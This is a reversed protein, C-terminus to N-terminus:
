TRTRYLRAAIPAFVATLVAASALVIVIEQGPTEGAMLAREATVLVTIPNADVANELWSPMTEPAVFVNSAFTLPFLLLFGMNLMGAPTKMVLGMVTFAWALGSSFVILLALAAVVGLVSSARFGLAFGVSLTVAGALLYRVADGLQAGVLPAPRWIPLARFRDFVGKSIDTCINVGSYVTTFLMTMVLIGPTLYQLYDQTSGEIAGGFLYTFMLIFMVPTLTVDFLQEPVHKIRLMARWCFVQAAVAPSAPKPRDRGAVTVSVVDALSAQGDASREIAATSM